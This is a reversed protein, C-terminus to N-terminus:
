PYRWTVVATTPVPVVDVTLPVVATDQLVLSSETATWVPAPVEILVTYAAGACSGPAEADPALNAAFGDATVGTATVVGEVGALLVRGYPLVTAEDIRAGCGLQRGWVVGADVDLAALLPFHSETPPYGSSVTRTGDVLFGNAATTYDTELTCRDCSPALGFARAAVLDGSPSLRLIDLSEPASALVLIDGGALEQVKM